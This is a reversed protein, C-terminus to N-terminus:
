GLLEMKGEYVSLIEPVREQNKLVFKELFKKVSVTLASSLCLDKKILGKSMLVQLVSCRPVVRKELSYSLINPNRSIYSPKCNMKNVFFDMGRRIKQESIVMYMPYMKFASFVEDESWGLSRYVELKGEWNLKSMASMVRVALIFHAKVPNFGMEKVMAVMERFRSNNQIMTRPQSSILKSIMSNPVGHNQLVAVNPAMVKEPNCQLIYTSRRVTYIIKENTHILSKLFTFTPIIHNDLSRKLLIPDLTLLKALDIRSFGLSTFFEFKPKLTKDPNALLLSPCKTILHTIHSKTFGHNQFFELASDPKKTPKLQIKTAALLAEAESLGCSNILYSVTFSKQITTNSTHSISK